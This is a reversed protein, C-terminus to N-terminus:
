HFVTSQLLLSKPMETKREIETERDREEKEGKRGRGEKQEVGCLLLFVRFVASPHPLHLQNDM